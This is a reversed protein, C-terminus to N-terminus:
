IYVNQELKVTYFIMDGADWFLHLELETNSSKNYMNQGYYMKLYWISNISCYIIYILINKAWIIKAKHKIKM